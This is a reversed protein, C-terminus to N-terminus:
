MDTEWVNTPPIHIGANNAMIDLRGLREVAFAVLSEVADEDSVDTVRSFVEVDPFDAAISKAADDVEPRLDALVVSVGESALTRAIGEGLGRSSGTVIATQGTVSRFDSM